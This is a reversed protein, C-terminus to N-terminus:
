SKERNQTTVSKQPLDCASAIKCGGCKNLYVCHEAPLNDKGRIGLFGAVALGGVMLIRIGSKLFERRGKHKISAKVM